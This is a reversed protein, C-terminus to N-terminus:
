LSGRRPTRRLDLRNPLEQEHQYNIRLLTSPSRERRLTRHYPISYQGLHCNGCFLPGIFRIAFHGIPTGKSRLEPVGSEDFIVEALSEDEDKLVDITAARKKPPLRTTDKKILGPQSVPNVM